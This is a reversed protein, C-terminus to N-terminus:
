AQPGERLEVDAVARDAGGDLQRRDLVEGAVDLHDLRDVETAAGETGAGADAGFARAVREEDLVKRVVHRCDGPRVPETM